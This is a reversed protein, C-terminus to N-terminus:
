HDFLNLYIKPDVPEGNKIVEYHLHPGTSRGTSGIAGIEEGKTVQDGNAVDIRSLHAYLTQYTDNHRIIITEGYNGYYNARIVIGDGAAYVPTGTAGRVDIGSHFSSNSSFPDSRLGFDSTITNPVTPWATPIHRINENVQNINALTKQYSELWVTSDTLSFSGDANEIVESEDVPIEVGGLAEEPLEVIYEQIQSELQNLEELTEQVQVRESELEEIQIRLNETLSNKDELKTLLQQKEVLQQQSITEQQSNLMIFYGLLAIPILAFLSGFLIVLKPIRLRTIMKNADNSLITFTLIKFKPKKLQM